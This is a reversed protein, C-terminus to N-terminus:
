ANKNNEEVRKFIVSKGDKREGSSCCGISPQLIHCDEPFDGFFCGECIDQEVVELTVRGFPIREGIRYNKGPRYVDMNLIDEAKMELFPDEKFAKMSNGHKIYLEGNNNCLYLYPEDVFSVNNKHYSWKFGVDFLKHQIERSRGDVYVKTNSLFKIAEKITM